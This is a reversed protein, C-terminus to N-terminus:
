QAPRGNMDAKARRRTAADMAPFFLGPTVMGVTEPAMRWCFRYAIETSNFVAKWLFMSGPVSRIEIVDASNFVARWLFM